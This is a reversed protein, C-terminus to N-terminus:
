FVYDEDDYRVTTGAELRGRNCTSCVPVLMLGDVEPEILDLLDSWLRAVAAGRFEGEFVSYQVRQACRELRKVVRRRRRDDSIDYSILYRMSDGVHGLRTAGLRRVTTVSSTDCPM